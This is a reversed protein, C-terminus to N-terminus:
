LAPCSGVDEEVETVEFRRCCGGECFSESTVVEECPRGNAVEVCRPEWDTFSNSGCADNRRELYTCIM